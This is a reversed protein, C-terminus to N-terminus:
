DDRAGVADLAKEVARRGIEVHARGANRAGEPNGARVAAAIGALNDSDRFEAALVGTLVNWVATYTRTMSNFALRFAINGGHEVLKKWFALAQNQLVKLDARQSRM